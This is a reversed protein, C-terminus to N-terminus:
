HVILRCRDPFPSAASGREYGPGTEREESIRDWGAQSQRQDTAAM